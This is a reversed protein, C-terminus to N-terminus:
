LLVQAHTLVESISQKREYFCRILTNGMDKYKVFPEAKKTSKERIDRKVVLEAADRKLKLIGRM